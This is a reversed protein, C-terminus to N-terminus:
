SSSGALAKRFSARQSLKRGRHFLSKKEERIRLNVKIMRLHSPISPTNENGTFMERASQLRGLQGCKRIQILVMSVPGSM